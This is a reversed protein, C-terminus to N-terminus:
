QHRDKKVTEEILDELMKIVSDMHSNIIDLYYAAMIKQIVVNIVISIVILIIIAYIIM